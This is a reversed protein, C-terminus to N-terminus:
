KDGFDFDPTAAAVAIVIAVAVAVLAAAVLISSSRDGESYGIRYIQSCAIATVGMSSRDAPFPIGNVGYLTDAIVRIETFHYEPGDITIVTIKDAKMQRLSQDPNVFKTTSCGSLQLGFCFLVVMATMKSPRM